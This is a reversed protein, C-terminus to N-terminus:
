AYNEGEYINFSGEEVVVKFQQNRGESRLHNMTEKSNTVFVEPDQFLSFWTVQYKFYKM